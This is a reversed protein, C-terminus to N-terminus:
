NPSVMTVENNVQAFGVTINQPQGNCTASFEVILKNGQTSKSIVSEFNYTNSNHMFQAYGENAMNLLESNPYTTAGVVQTAQTQPPVYKQEAAKQAAAAAAQQQQQEAVAKARAKDNKETQYLATGGVVVLLVVLLIIKVKGNM